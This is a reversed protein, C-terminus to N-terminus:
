IWNCFAEETDFYFCEKRKGYNEYFYDNFGEYENKAEKTRAGYVELTIQFYPKDIDFERNRSVSTDCCHVGL